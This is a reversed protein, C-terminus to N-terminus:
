PVSPVPTAGGLTDGNWAPIADGVPDCSVPVSAAGAAPSSLAHIPKASVGQSSRVFVRTMGHLRVRLHRLTFSELRALLGVYENRKRRIMYALVMGPVAVLLGMETTILAESIGKAMADVMTGGGVAIARFTVLMGLVTGLLGLLPAAGVLVNVSALRRDLDPVRTAEVEKFRNAADDLSSVDDQTYRLVEALEGPAQDPNVVWARIDEDRVRGVTRRNLTTLLHVGSAYLTLAVLAIPIMTWGGAVWSEWIRQLMSTLDTTM